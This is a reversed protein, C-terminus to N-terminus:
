GNEVCLTIGLSNRSFNANSVYMLVANTSNKVPFHVVQPILKHPQSPTLSGSYDHSEYYIWLAPEKICSLEDLNISAPISFSLVKYNPDPSSHLRSSLVLSSVM